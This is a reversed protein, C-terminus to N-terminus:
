ARRRRAPIVAAAIALAAAGPAPVPIVGIGDLDFGDGSANHHAPNTRDAIKVFDFASHGSDAMVAALSIPVNDATNQIIGVSYWTAANWSAGVGVYLEAAEPYTSASGYTTEVLLAEHAFPTGFSLVIEGGFGLSVFNIADANQAQGLALLPNSREADVAAGNKKLGQAFNEVTTAWVVDAQAAGSVASIAAVAVIAATRTM